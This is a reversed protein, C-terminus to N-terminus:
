IHQQESTIEKGEKGERGRKTPESCERADWNRWQRKKRGSGGWVGVGGGKERELGSCVCCKWLFMRELHRIEVKM